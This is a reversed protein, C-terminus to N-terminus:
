RVGSVSGCRRHRRTRDSGGSRTQAEVQRRMDSEHVGAARVGETEVMGPNISNVRMRRPGLERALSRTIADLAAKNAGCVAGGAGGISAAISSINSICGGDTGFRRAAAQACLLAGLVNRNFQREFLEETVRDLAPVPL